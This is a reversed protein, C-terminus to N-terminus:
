RGSATAGVDVFWGDEALVPRVVLHILPHGFDPPGAVNASDMRTQRTRASAPTSCPMGMDYHVYAWRFSSVCQFETAANSLRFYFCLLSRIVLPYTNHWLVITGGVYWTAFDCSATALGASTGPNGALASDLNVLPKNFVEERSDPPPAPYARDVVSLDPLGTTASLRASFPGSNGPRSHAKQVLRLLQEYTPLSWGGVGGHRGLAAAWEEVCQPRRAPPIVDDDGYWWLWRHKTPVGGCREKPNELVSWMLGTELEIASTDPMRRPLTRQQRELRDLATTKAREADRPRREATTRFESEYLALVATNWGYREVFRAVHERYSPGIFGGGRLESTLLRQFADVVGLHKVLRDTYNLYDDSRIVHADIERLAACATSAPEGRPFDGGGCWSSWAAGAPVPTRCDDDQPKTKCSLANDVLWDLHPKIPDDKTGVWALGLSSTLQALSARAVQTELGYLERRIAILQENIRALEAKIEELASAVPDLGIAAIVRGLAAGAAGSAGAKLLDAPTVFFGARLAPARGRLNVTRTGASRVLRALYRDVGGAARAARLFRGADFERASVRLDHAGDHWRPLGFLRATAQAARRPSRGALVQAATVSSLPSVVLKGGAEARTVVARLTGGFRRGRVTGGRVSVVYRGPRARVPVDFTGTPSTWEGATSLLRGSVSRVEVRAGDLPSGEGVLAWGDVGPRGAAHRGAASASPAPLAALGVAVVISAIAAVLLRRQARPPRAATTTM